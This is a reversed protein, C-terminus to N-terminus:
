EIERVVFQTEKLVITELNGELDTLDALEKEFSRGYMNGDGYHCITKVPLIGLGEEIRGTDQDYYYKALVNAGASSGAMIKNQFLSGLDDYKSLVDRIIHGDGGRLYLVDSKVLQNLFKDKSALIFTIKKKLTMRPCADSHGPFGIGKELNRGACSHCNIDSIKEKDQEELKTWEEGARAFYCLLITIENKQLNLFERFFQTNSECDIKTQGGHLIYKTMINYTKGYYKIGIMVMRKKAQNPLM